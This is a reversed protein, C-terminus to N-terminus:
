EVPKLYVCPRTDLPLPPGVDTVVFRGPAVTELAVESGVEPSRGRHEILAQGGPLPVVLLVVRRRSQRRKAPAQASGRLRKLEARAAELELRTRRHEAREHDLKARTEAIWAAHEEVQAKKGAAADSARSAPAEEEPGADQADEPVDGRRRAIAAFLGSGFGNETEHSLGLQESLAAALATESLYGKAVLIEGLRRGSRKQESLARGLDAKSVLGKAVLVEGL